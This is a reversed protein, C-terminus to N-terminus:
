MPFVFWREPSPGVASRGLMGSHWELPTSFCTPDRMFRGEHLCLHKAIIGNTYQKNQSTFDACIAKSDKTEASFDRQGMAFDTVGDPAGARLRKCPTQAM